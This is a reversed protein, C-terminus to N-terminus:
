GEIGDEVCRHVEGGVGEWDWDRDLEVREEELRKLDLLLGGLM